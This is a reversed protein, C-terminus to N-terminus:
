APALCDLLPSVIMENARDERNWVFYRGFDKQM